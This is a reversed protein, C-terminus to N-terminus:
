LVKKLNELHEVPLKLTEKELDPVNCLEGVEKITDQDVDLLKAYISYYKEPFLYSDMYKYEQSNQGYYQRIAKKLATSFKSYKGTIFHQWDVDYLSFDFLYIGYDQVHITSAYLPNSLLMQEEFAKFGATGTEKFSCALRMEEPKVIGEIAVYTGTPSYNSSKKIGVAPYLFSRSKQFYKGYLSDIM